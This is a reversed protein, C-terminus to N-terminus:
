VLGNELPAADAEAKEGPKDARTRLDALVGKPIRYWELPPQADPWLGTGNGRWGNTIDGSEARGPWLIPLSFLLVAALASRAMPTSWWQACDVTLLSMKGVKDPLSQDSPILSPEKNATISGGLTM